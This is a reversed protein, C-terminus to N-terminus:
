WTTNANDIRVVRDAAIDVISDRAAQRAELIDDPVPVGTESQRVIYWDTSALYALNEANSREQEIKSQKIPDIKIM